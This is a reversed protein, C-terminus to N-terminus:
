FIPNSTKKYDAASFRLAVSPKIMPPYVSEFDKIIKLLTLDLYDAARKRFEAPAGYYAEAISGTIAGITDSDGGISIANRLADEFNRSELFAEIAQPVSGQCTADFRYDDRIEDLTFDLPYYNNEVYKRIKALTDGKRALFICVSVAEAGKIGEPHTHTIETVARSLTKAAWAVSSVRMAAGNGFSNCPKKDESYLWECFTAGYGRNEYLRGFCYMTKKAIESLKKYNGKCAWVAAAIAITLVTDDTFECHENFLDFHKSKHKNGDFEFRSGVIDGIIAGMM